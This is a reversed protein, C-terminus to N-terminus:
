SPACRTKTKRFQENIYIYKWGETHLFHWAEFLNYANKEEDITANKEKTSELSYCAM